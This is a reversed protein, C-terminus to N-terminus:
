SEPSVSAYGVFVRWCCRTRPTGSEPAARSRTVWRPRCDPRDLMLGALAALTEASHGPHAAHGALLRRATALLAPLRELLWALLAAGVPAPLPVPGALLPELVAPM